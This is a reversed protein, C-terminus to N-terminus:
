QEDFHMQGNNDLWQLTKKSGDPSQWLISGGAEMERLACLAKTGNETLYTENPTVPSSASTNLQKLVKAFPSSRNTAVTLEGSANTFRFEIIIDNSTLSTAWTTMNATNLNLAGSLTNSPTDGTFSSSSALVSASGASDYVYISLALGSVSVQTFPDGTALSADPNLELPYVVLNLNNQHYIKGFPDNTPTKDKRGAVFVGRTLDCFVYKIGTGSAAV